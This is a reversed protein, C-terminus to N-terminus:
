TAGAAGAGESHMGRAARVNVVEFSTQCPGEGGDPQPPLTVGQLLVGFHSSSKEGNSNTVTLGITHIGSPLITRAVPNTGTSTDIQGDGNFDWEYSIM